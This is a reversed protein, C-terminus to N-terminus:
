SMTVKGKDATYLLVLALQLVSVRVMRGLYEPM